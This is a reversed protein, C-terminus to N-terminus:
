VNRNLDAIISLEAKIRSKIADEVNEYKGLHKKNGNQTITSIWKNTTKDLYVGTKGSEFGEHRNNKIFELGTNFKIYKRDLYVTSNMYLYNYVMNMVDYGYIFSEYAKGKAQIRNLVPIGNEFLCHGINELIDKTGVLIVKMTRTIDNFYVCGDGDFYGRIFHNLLKKSVISDNPFTLTLSKRPTCGLKILDRCMKTCCITVRRCDYKKGNLKVIKKRITVNSEIDNLFKELHTEDKSSLSVELTMGKPKGDRFIENICGDAYLFGLWYAKKENDIKEFFNKNYYYKSM